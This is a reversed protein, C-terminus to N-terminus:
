KSKEGNVDTIIRDKFKLVAEVIQHSPITAKRGVM